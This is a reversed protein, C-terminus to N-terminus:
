HHPISQLISPRKISRKAPLSNYLDTKVVTEKLEDLDNVRTAM